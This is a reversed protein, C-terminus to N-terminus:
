MATLWRMTPSCLLLLRIVSVGDAQLDLAQGSGSTRRHFGLLRMWLMLAAAILILAAALWIWLPRAPRRVNAKLTRTGRNSVSPENFGSQTSDTSRFSDRFANEDAKRM